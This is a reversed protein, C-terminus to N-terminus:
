RHREQQRLWHQVYRDVDRRAHRSLLMGLHGYEERHRNARSLLRYTAERTTDMRDLGALVDEPPAFPDSCGAMLLLPGPITGLGALYDTGGDRSRAEGEAYWRILDQVVAVPPEASLHNEFQIRVANAANVGQPFGPDTSSRLGPGDRLGTLLSARLVAYPPTKGLAHSELWLGVAPAAFRFDFRTGLAVWRPAAPPPAAEPSTAAAAAPLMGCLGHGIWTLSEEGAIETLQHVLAPYAQHVVGDFGTAAAQSSQWPDVLYVRYGARELSGALGGDSRATFVRVSEGIDPCLAVLPGSPTDAAAGHPMPHPVEGLARAPSDASVVTALVTAILALCRPASSSWGSLM